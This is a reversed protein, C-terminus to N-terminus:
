RARAASRLGSKRRSNAIRSSECDASPNNWAESTAETTNEGSLCLVVTPNATAVSTIEIGKEIMPGNVPTNMSRHDRRFIRRSRATAARRREHPQHEEVRM